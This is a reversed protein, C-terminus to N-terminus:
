SRVGYRPSIGADFRSIAHTWVQGFLRRVSLHKRKDRRKRGFIVNRGLGRRLVLVVVVLGQPASAIRGRGM